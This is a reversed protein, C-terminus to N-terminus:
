TQDKERLVDEICSLLEHRARCLSTAVAGPSQSFKGAIQKISWNLEYRHKLLDRMHDSLRVMCRRLARCRDTIEGSLPEAEASLQDLLQQDFILRDRNKDRYWALVQFYAIRCAWAAFDQRRDFEAAKRWLVLNTEQLVDLAAERNSLLMLIYAFLRDQCSGLREVFQEVAEPCEEDLM